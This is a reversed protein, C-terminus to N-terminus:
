LREKIAQIVKKYYFADHPVYHNQTTTNFLATELIEIPVLQLDAVEEEQKQLEHFSQKLLCIFTHHFERDVLDDRHKQVSKFIGIPQLEATTVELGIEEKVERIAGDLIKEGSAVHGAVSVDWLSPFTAKNKARQQLLVMGEQTYFWIHVTPHFLGNKHAASKLAKEGTYAGKENLLDIWEDM